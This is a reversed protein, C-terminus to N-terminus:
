CPLSLFNALIRAGVASSREPHFQCGYANGRNVMAAFRQGYAASAITNADIPCVYSHVFYAYAGDEVGELLPNAREIRLKSWGMHPAPAEKSAPLRTVRGPLLALGEADGEDSSEFLLQQGLCVGLLPREFARLIDRLGKQAILEMAHAAAGVGPLIIREADAIRVPDDTLTALANLRELAFMVSATNGVGLKVVVTSM